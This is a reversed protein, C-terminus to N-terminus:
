LGQKVTRTSVAWRHAMPQLGEETNPRLAPPTFVCCAAWGPQCWLGRYCPGCCTHTNTCAFRRAHTPSKQTRSRLKPAQIGGVQWVPNPAFPPHRPASCISDVFSASSDSNCPKNETCTLKHTFGTNNGHEHTCVNVYSSELRDYKSANPRASEEVRFLLTVSPALLIACHSVSHSHLYNVCQWASFPPFTDARTSSLKM